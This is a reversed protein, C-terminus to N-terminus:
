GIVRGHGNPKGDLDDHLAGDAEWRELRERYVEMPESRQREKLREWAEEYTFPNGLREQWWQVFSVKSRGREILYTRYLLDTIEQTRNSGPDAQQGMLGPATVPPITAIPTPSVANHGVIKNSAEDQTQWGEDRKRAENAIQLTETQADRLLEAARLEAFRWQVTAAIGQCQLALGCLRELLPECLQQLSKIGAAHIEWQRNANAESVGDTTAMLLPMTKLARTAMRELGKIIGDVAGLGSANMAGVPQNVEVADPHVYARDPGLNNYVKMIDAFAGELWTQRAVPDAKADEPMMKLLEEFKVMLDIRPWGQQQVVKRIDHLISLLFVSTFVAPAFLARGYPKGPLPHVPVYAITPRDLVVEKGLQLQVMQQVRGRDPDIIQKFRVHAPDPTAIELPVRGSADLVLEAMFAGRMAPQMFLSGIVVKAPVVNPVSYPGHLNSLFSDLAKQAAEDQETTGPRFVKVEWGPACMLIHDWLARSVEPSGDALLEMLKPLPVRDLTRADLNYDRWYSDASFPALYSFGALLTENPNDLTVRGGALARTVGVSTSRTARTEEVGLWKRLAKRPNLEM